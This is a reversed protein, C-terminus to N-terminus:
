VNAMHRAIGFQPITITYQQIPTSMVVSVDISDFVKNYIVCGLLQQKVRTNKNKLPHLKCFPMTTNVVYLVSCIYKM